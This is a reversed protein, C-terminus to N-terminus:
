YLATDAALGELRRKITQMFPGVQSGDVIRHDFAICLNMMSRIAIADAVIVPRKVIAETSLIACQPPNIIPQSVLSGFVGTNDLTFTGGQVDELRLKRTRARAALDVVAHALGAISLRDAHHIVPVILGDNSGVAIGINIQRKVVIQDDRWESNLLPHEKLAEVLAKIMFPMYSLDVGERRRFEEKAAERLMVLRTVDNEVVMWATPVTQASRLMNRAITLRTASPKIIDEDDSTATARVPPPAARAPTEAAVAPPADTVAPSPPSAPTEREAPAAAAAPARDDAETRAAGREARDPTQGVPAAMERVGGREVFEVVDKRTVRGGMGSGPITKLDIGHEAALRLVAPTYRGAGGGLSGSPPPAVPGNRSGAGTSATAVLTETTPVAAVESETLAQGPTVSSSMPTRSVPEVPTAPTVPSPAASPAGPNSTTSPAVPAPMAAEGRGGIVALEAGVPVTEGEAVLIEDLTGEFPSPIEVNVKETEVEVLPEDARVHEGPQKLWKLVTGEVDSEGLQPMTFAPM